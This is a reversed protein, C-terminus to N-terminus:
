GCLQHALVGHKALIIESLGWDSLGQDTGFNLVLADGNPLDFAECPEGRLHLGACLTPNDVADVPPSYNVHGWGLNAYTESPGAPLAVGRAENQGATVDVISVLGASDTTVTLAGGKANVWSYSSGDVRRPSGRKALLEKVSSGLAVGDLAYAPSEARAATCQLGTLM